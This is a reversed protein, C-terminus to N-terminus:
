PSDAPYETADDTWLRRMQSRSDNRVLKLVDVDHKDVHDGRTTLVIRFVKQTIGNLVTWFRDLANDFALRFTSPPRKKLTLFLVLRYLVLSGVM